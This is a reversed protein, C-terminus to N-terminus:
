ASSPMRSQRKDRPSPSTYLLCGPVDPSPLVVGNGVVKLFGRLQDLIEGLLYSTGILRKAAAAGTAGHEERMAADALEEMSEETAVGLAQMIPTALVLISMRNKGRLSEGAHTYVREMKLVPQSGIASASGGGTTQSRTRPQDYCPLSQTPLSEDVDSATALQAASLNAM